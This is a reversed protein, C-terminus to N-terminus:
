GSTGASRIVSNGPRFVRTCGEIEPFSSVIAPGVTPPTNSTLFEEPGFSGNLNVQYIRDANKLFRDYGLENIVYFTIFIVCAMGIALGSINIISYVRNRTINRWAIKFNNKLM